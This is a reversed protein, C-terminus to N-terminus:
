HDWRLKCVGLLELFTYGHTGQTFHQDPIDKLICTIHSRIRKTMSTVINEVNTCGILICFHLLLLMAYAVRRKNNDNQRTYVFCICCVSESRKERIAKWNMWWCWYIELDWNSSWWFFVPSCCHIIAHIRDSLSPPPTAQNSWPLPIESWQHHTYLACPNVSM